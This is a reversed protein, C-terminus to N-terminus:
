RGEITEAVAVFHWPGSCWELSHVEAVELVSRLEKFDCYDYRLEEPQVTLDSHM